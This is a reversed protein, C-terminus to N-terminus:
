VMLKLISQYALITLIIIGDRNALVEGKYQEVEVDKGNTTRKVVLLDLPLDKNFVVDFINEPNDVVQESLYENFNLNPAKLLGYRFFTFAAM